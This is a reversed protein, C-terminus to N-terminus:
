IGVRTSDEVTMSSIDDQNSQIYEAHVDSNKELSFFM